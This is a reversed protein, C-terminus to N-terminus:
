PTVQPIVIVDGAARDGEGHLNLAARSVLGAGVSDDRHFEESVGIFGSMPPTGPKDGPTMRTQAFRSGLFNANFIPGIDGLLFNSWCTVTTSTSFQEEFENTVVFQVVPSAPQQNEFDASCPLLTVETQVNSATGGLVEIAPDMTGEAFHNVIV